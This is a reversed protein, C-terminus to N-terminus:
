RGDRDRRQRRTLIARLALADGLVFAVLVIILVVATSM